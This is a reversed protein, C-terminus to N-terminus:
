WAVPLSLAGALQHEGDRYEIEAAPVALRLDPLREILGSLAIHMELRALHQGLCMHRGHGFALHGYAQRTFDLEDPQDFKRPDRNASSLSVLVSQGAAISVGGLEVDETATRVMGGGQVVTIFRMFEEVAGPLLSPDSVLEEWKSRESLLINTSLTIMGSTTRHGAEFLLQAVGVMEDTTLEGKTVLESLLDDGPRSRKQEIVGRCFEFFDLLANIKQDLDAYPDDVIESLQEYRGRDSRSGGLMSCITLSSVPLAFSELLDVPVAEGEMADIQEGVIRKITPSYEGIRRITFHAALARRVRTHQPPDLAVLTGAAEPRASALRFFSGEVDPDGIAARIPHVSFRSDTLLDRSLSYDTILWGVHGDPFALSRIPESERLAGLEPPPELPDVRKTPLSIPAGHPCGGGAEKGHDCLEERHNM